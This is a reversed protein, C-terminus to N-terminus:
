VIDLKRLNYNAYETRSYNSSVNRWNGEDLSGKIRPSYGERDRIYPSDLDRQPSKIKRLERSNYNMDVRTQRLERNIQASQGKSTDTYNIKPVIFRKEM